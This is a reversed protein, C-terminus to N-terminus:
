NRIPAVRDRCLGIEPKRTENDAMTLCNYLAVLTLKLANLLSAVCRKPHHSKIKRGVALRNSPDELRNLKRVRTHAHAERWRAVAWNAEFPFLRM